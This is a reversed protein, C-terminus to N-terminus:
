IPYSGSVHEIFYEKEKINKVHAYRRICISTALYTFAKIETGDDKIVTIKERTYGSEFKDFFPLMSVNVDWLEGKIKVPQYYHYANYMSQKLLFPIHNQKASILVMTNKTIAPCIYKAKLMNKLFSNNFCGNKCSGYIFFIM